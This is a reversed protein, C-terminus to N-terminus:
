CPQGNEDHQTPHADGHAILSLVIFSPYDGCLARFIETAQEKVAAEHRLQESQLQEDFKVDDHCIAIFQGFKMASDVLKAILIRAQVKDPM